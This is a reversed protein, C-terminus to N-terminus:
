NPDYLIRGVEDAPTGATSQCYTLFTQDNYYPPQCNGRVILLMNGTTIYSELFGGGVYDDGGTEPFGSDREWVRVVTNSNGLITAKDASEGEGWYAGSDVWEWINNTVNKDTYHKFMIENDGWGDSVYMMYGELIGGRTNPPYTIGGGGEGSCERAAPDCEDPIMLTSPGFGKGGDRVSKPEAPHLIMVVQAPIGKRRDLSVQVGAPTFAALMPNDVDLNVGVALDGTGRWARRQEAVPLYFDLAPLEALWSEVTGVHVGASSASAELVRRGGPTAVFEQFVLKNEHWGSEQMARHVQARVAPDRMALALARALKQGADSAVATYPTLTATATPELAKTPADCGALALLALIAAALPAGTSAISSRRHTAHPM